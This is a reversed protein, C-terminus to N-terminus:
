LTYLEICFFNMIEVVVLADYHNLYFPLACASASGQVSYILPQPGHPSHCLGRPGFPGLRQDRPTSSEFAPRQKPNPYGDRSPCRSALLHGRALKTVASLHLFFRPIPPGRGQPEGWSNM